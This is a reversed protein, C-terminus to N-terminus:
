FSQDMHMMMSNVISASSVTCIHLDVPMCHPRSQVAHRLQDCAVVKDARRDRQAHLFQIPRNQIDIEHPHGVLADTGTSFELLLELTQALVGYVCPVLNKTIFIFLLLIADITGEWHLARTRNWRAVASVAIHSAQRVHELSPGVAERTSVMTLWQCWTKRQRRRRKRKRTKRGRMRRGTRRRRTATDNALQRRCSTEDAQLHHVVLSLHLSSQRRCSSGLPM